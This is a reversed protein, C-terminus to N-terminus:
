LSLVSAAHWFLTPVKRILSIGMFYLTTETPVNFLFVGRQKSRDNNNYKLETTRTECLWNGDSIEERICCWRPEYLNANTFLDKPLMLGHKTQFVYM